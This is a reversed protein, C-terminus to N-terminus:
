SRKIQVRDCELMDQTRTLIAPLYDGDSGSAARLQDMTKRHVRSAEDHYDILATGSPGVVFAAMSRKDGQKGGAHCHEAVRTGKEYSIIAKSGVPTMRVSGPYIRFVRLSYGDPIPKKITGRVYVTDIEDGATPYTIKIGYASATLLPGKSRSWLYIGIGVSAIGIVAAGIRAERDPIPLWAGYTIGGALGLVVLAIGAVVLLTPLSDLIKTVASSKIDDAM